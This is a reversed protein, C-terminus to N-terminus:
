SLDDLQIRQGKKVSCNLRKGLIENLHECALGFGPRIKRVNKLSLIEGACLDDGYYLSRRFQKNLEEGMSRSWPTDNLSAYIDHVTKVLESLEDFTASFDSDPTKITRDIIFHKEIARVGLATAAIAATNGITHDSLGVSVGFQDQLVKIMGLNSHAINTPYESVCHFLLLEHPSLHQLAVKTVREVEDLSAMGTSMLVPRKQKCIHEVLSWDTLEFSAVKYGPPSFKELFDVAAEDFPTAFLEIGNTKAYSFIEDHWELPTEAAKYLDFLTSGSWKGHKIQFDELKVDLTMSEATYTQIKVLDAGTEKAALIHEKMVDLSGGHNASIEAIILPPTMSESAIRELVSM